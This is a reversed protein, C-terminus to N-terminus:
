NFFERMSNIIYDQEEFKLEPYLPISLIEKALGETVPFDGEKHNLREYAKQLHLPVPYHIGCSIGKLKLFELLEDRKQTRIVYMYYPHFAWDKEIPIIVIEKLEKDYRKALIRRKSIWEELHPLKVNLIAAQLADIRSNYGEIVSEYKSIRGHNRYLEIKKAIEDNNTSIAGADGFAGLIKAPFMSFCGIDGISGLIQGKYKGGHAQACDEIVRLGYKKALNLIPDMDCPHGYLHVCIIAKTKDNIKEEIKDVDINFTEKDIDVFVPIGDNDSISETTAIFTNSVTIVEDGEKIDCAKLALRVAETGNSVGFSYKTNCYLAWKKDFEEVHPGMIFSTNSIVNTIADDIEKKISKYNAKLDVLPINM